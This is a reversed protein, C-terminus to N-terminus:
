PGRAFIGPENKTQSARHILLNSSVDVDQKDFHHSGTVKNIIQAVGIAENEFNLIPM